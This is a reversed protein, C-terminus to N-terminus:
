RKEQSSSSEVNAVSALLERHKNGTYNQNQLINLSFHSHSTLRKVSLGTLMKAPLVFLM